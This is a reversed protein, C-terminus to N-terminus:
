FVGLRRGGLFAAVGSVLMGPLSFLMSLIGGGGGTPGMAGGVNEIAGKEDGTVVYDYHIVMASGASVTSDVTVNAGISDYSSTIGSFSDIDSFDTDGTDEAYEVTVYRTTPVSVQDSLELNAYSLDYADPVEYRFHGDFRHEYNAYQDAATFEVSIDDNDLDDTTQEFDVTLGMITADDFAPGMSDLSHVSLSGGTKMEEITVTELEDDDDNDVKEAGFTWMSTKDVNLAAIEVEADADVVEVEVKEIDSFSGDGDSVLSMDGLQRQYILGEGTASGILNESDSASPDITADYHDGDADVVSVTVNSGSDLTTIDLVVQLYRKNEDSTISFNSFTATADDGSAMTGDTGIQVAEKGPATEVDSVTLKSSNTGSVSWEAADLASVDDKAHPFGDADSFNVDSAVFSYPNEQDPDERGPFDVVDGSDDEYQLGSWAMDYDEVTVNGTLEADPAADADTNITSSQALAPTATMSAILSIALLVVLGGKLTRQLM